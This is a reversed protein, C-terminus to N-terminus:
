DIRGRPIKLPAKRGSEVAEIEANTPFTDAFSGSYRVLAAMRRKRNYEQMASVVAERKTKAGTWRMSETLVEEPIDVTTKM